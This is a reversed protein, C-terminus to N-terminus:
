TAKMVEFHYLHLLIHLEPSIEIIERFATTQSYFINVSFKSQFFTTLLSPPIFIMKVIRFLVVNGKKTSVLGTM